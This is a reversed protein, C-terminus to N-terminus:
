KSPDSRCVRLVEFALRMLEESDQVREPRWVMLLSPIIPSAVSEVRKAWRSGGSSAGVAPALAARFYSM